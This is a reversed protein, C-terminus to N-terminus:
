KCLMDKGRFSYASLKRNIVGSEFNVYFSTWKDVNKRCVSLGKIKLPFDKTSMGGMLWVYYSLGLPNSSFIHTSEAFIDDANFDFNRSFIKSAGLLLNRFIFSFILIMSDLEFKTLIWEFFDKVVNGM